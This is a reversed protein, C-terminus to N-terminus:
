RKTLKGPVKELHNMVMQNMQLRKRNLRLRFGLLIVTKRSRVFSYYINFIINLHIIYKDHQFLIIYSYINPIYVQLGSSLAIELLNGRQSAKGL